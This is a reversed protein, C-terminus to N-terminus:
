MYKKNSFTGEDCEEYQETKENIGFGSPCDTLNLIFSAATLQVIM